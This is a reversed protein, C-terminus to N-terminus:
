SDNKEGTVFKYYLALLNKSVEDWTYKAVVLQYGREGMLELKRKPMNLFMELTHALEEVNEPVILWGNYKHKVLYPNEGVTTVIVPLKATWAELITLPFGESRSPLIFVDAGCYESILDKGVKKGVFEVIGELNLKTVLKKLEKEMYGYGVLRVKVNNILLEYKIKQVARILIDVGKVYDFRGVYLFVFHGYKHKKPFYKFMDLSVGNPIYVARNVNTYRLFKRSVTIQLDYKIRTLLFNEFKALIHNSKLELNNAGHVTYIIPVNLLKSLIKGPIGPFYAHAHIIDYRKRRHNRIVAIMTLIAWYIRNFITVNEWQKPTGIRFIRLKGGFLEENKNYVKGGKDKLAMVYLDIEVGHKVLRKCIEYVHVQGGGWIPEWAEIIMAVRM